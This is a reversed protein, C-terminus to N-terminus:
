VTCELQPIAMVTTDASGLAGSPDSEMERNRCLIMLLLFSAQVFSLNRKKVLIFFAKSM